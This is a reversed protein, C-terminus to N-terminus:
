VASRTLRSRWDTASEMPTFAFPVEHCGLDLLEARIEDTLKVAWSDSVRPPTPRRIIKVDLVVEPWDAAASAYRIVKECPPGLYEASQQKSLTRDHLELLVLLVEICRPCGGDAHRGVLYHRGVLEVECATEPGEGSLGGHAPRLRFSISFMRIREGLRSSKYASKQLAVIEKRAFLTQDSTRTDARLEWRRDWSM